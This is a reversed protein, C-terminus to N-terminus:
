LRQIAIVKGALLIMYKRTEQKTKLGLEKAIARAQQNQVERNGTMNGKVKGMKDINRGANANFTNVTSISRDTLTNWLWKLAAWGAKTSGVLVAFEPYVNKIQGSSKDYWRGRPTEVEASGQEARAAKIQVGHIVVEGNEVSAYSSYFVQKKDDYTLNGSFTKDDVHTWQGYNFTEIAKQSGGMKISNLFRAIEEPDNTSWYDQGDPDYNNIPNNSCYAYPSIEYNEEALPDMTTFEPVNVTRMRAGNDIWNLGHMSQMEMGAHRYPQVSGGNVASEGFRAGSPYYNDREVITGDQQLVVRNSGLHDKLFYCYTQSPMNVYGEPTLIKTLVGNGYIYNGCYDTTTIVANPVVKLVQNLSSIPLDMAEPSTKDIVQLKTGEATYTYDTQHGEYFQITDPL